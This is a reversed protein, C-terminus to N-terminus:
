STTFLIWFCTCFVLRRPTILAKPPKPPQKQIRKVVEYGAEVDVGAKAEEVTDDTSNNDYVYVNVKGDISKTDKFCDEVVKRITVGENYCPILIALDDKM